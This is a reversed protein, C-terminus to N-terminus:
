EGSKGSFMALLEAAKDVIEEASSRKLSLQAEDQSQLGEDVEGQLWDLPSAVLRTLWDTTFRSEFTQDSDNDNEGSEQRGREAQSVQHLQPPFCIIEDQQGLAISIRSLAASIESSSPHLNLIPLHRSPTFSLTSM